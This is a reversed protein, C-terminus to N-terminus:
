YPILIKGNKITKKVQNSKVPYWIAELIVEVAKVKKDFPFSESKNIPVHPTPTLISKTPNLNYNTFYEKLFLNLIKKNQEHYDIHADNESQALLQNTSLSKFYKNEQANISHEPMAKKKFVGWSNLSFFMDFPAMDANNIPMINNNIDTAALYFNESYPNNYWALKPFIPSIWSFVFVMITVIVLHNNYFKQDDYLYFILLLLDFFVWKWFFCALFFFVGLHFLILSSLILIRIKKSNSILFLSAGEIVFAIFQFLEHYKILTHRLYDVYISPLSALWGRDLHKEFEISVDEWLFWDILNPSIQIKTLFSAFYSCSVIILIGAFWSKKFNFNHALINKSCCFFVYISLTYLLITVPLIKDAGSYGGIPFHFSGYFLFILPFYAFLAHPTFYILVTFFILLIRDFAYWENTFYNFHSFANNWTIIFAVLVLFIRWKRSLLIQWKIDKSIFLIIISFILYFIFVGINSQIFGFLLSESFFFIKEKLVNLKESTLLLTISDESPYKDFFLFYFGWGYRTFFVGSFVWLLYSNQSKRLRSSINKYFRILFM